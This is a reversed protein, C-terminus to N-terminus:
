KIKGMTFGIYNEAAIWSFHVVYWTVRGASRVQDGIIKLRKNVVRKKHYDPTPV